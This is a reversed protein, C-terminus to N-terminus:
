LKVNPNTYQGHKKTNGTGRLYLVYEGDNNVSSITTTGDWTTWATEDTSYELTGDWHKTADSVALTKKINSHNPYPPEGDNGEGAIVISDRGRQISVNSNQLVKWGLSEQLEVLRKEYKRKEEDSCKM